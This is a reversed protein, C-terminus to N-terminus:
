KEIAELAKFMNALLIEEAKLRSIECELSRLRKDCEFIKHLSDELESINVSTTKNM